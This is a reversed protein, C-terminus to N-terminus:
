MGSRHLLFQRVTPAGDLGSLEPCYQRAPEDLKVKGDQVLQFVATATLPKSVSAIRYQTDASPRRKESLSTTGFGKGYVVRDGSLIAISIGPINFRALTSAVLDDVTREAKFEQNSQDAASAASLLAGVILLASAARSAGRM